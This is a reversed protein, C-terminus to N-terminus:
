KGLDVIPIKGVGNIWDELDQLTMWGYNNHSQDAPNLWFHFEGNAKDVWRPSLAFYKKGAAKLREVIGTAAVVDQLDLWDTDIDSMLQLETKDMVSRIAITLGHGGFPNGGAVFIMADRKQLADYLQKLLHGSDKYTRIGLSRDDWATVIAEEWTPHDLLQDFASKDGIGAPHYELTPTFMLYAYKGIVVFRLERCSPVLTITRADAGFKERTPVTPVGFSKLLGGIGWEHEACADVGLSIGVFQQSANKLVKTGSFTRRM